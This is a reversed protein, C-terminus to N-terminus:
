TELEMFDDLRQCSNYYFLFHSWIPICIFSILHEFIMVMVVRIHFSESPWSVIRGMNQSQNYQFRSKFNPFSLSYTYYFVVLIELVQKWHGFFLFIFSVAAIVLYIALWGLVIIFNFRFGFLGMLLWFLYWHGLFITWLCFDLLLSIWLWSMM